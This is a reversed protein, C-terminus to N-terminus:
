YCWWFYRDISAPKKTRETKIINGSIQILILGILDPNISCCLEKFADKLLTSKKNRATENIERKAKQYTKM